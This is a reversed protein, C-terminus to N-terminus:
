PAPVIEKLEITWGLNMKLILPNTKSNLIWLQRQDISNKGNDLRLGKAAIDKGSKKYSFSVEEKKIFSENGSGMDMSTKGALSETFNKQSLWVTSKDTFTQDQGNFYNNYVVANKVANATIVIAAKNGKSPMDYSFSIGNEGLSKVLVEFNYIDGRFNVEYVLKDGPKIAIDANITQSFLLSFGALLTCLTFLIKKM